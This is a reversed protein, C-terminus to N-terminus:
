KEIKAIEESYKYLKDAIKKDKTENALMDLIEAVHAKKMIAEVEAGSLGENKAKGEELMDDDIEDMVKAMFDTAKPDDSFALGKMLSVFKGQEANDKSPKADILAKIAGDVDKSGEENKARKKEEIKENEEFEKMSESIGYM